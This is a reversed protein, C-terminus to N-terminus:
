DLSCLSSQGTCTFLQSNYGTGGQNQMETVRDRLDGTRGDGDHDTSSGQTFDETGSDIGQGGAAGKSDDTSTILTLGCHNDCFDSLNDAGLISNPPQNQTILGGSQCADIFITVKACAPLNTLDQILARYFVIQGVDEGDKPYLAFGNSDAHSAVYIWLEHCFCSQLNDCGVDAIEDVMTTLRTEFSLNEPSALSTTTNGWYQSRRTVTFGNDELYSQMTDADEAMNDALSTQFFYGRAEGGDVVLARKTCDDGAQKLGLFNELLSINEGLDTETSSVDTIDGAGDGTALDFTINDVTGTASYSFPEKTVGPRELLLPYAADLTEVSGDAVNVYAFRVAHTMKLEPNDDIFFAYYTSTGSPLTLTKATATHNQPLNEKLITGAPVPGVMIVKATTAISVSNLLAQAASQAEAPLDSLTDTDEGEEETTTTSTNNCGLAFIGVSFLLVLVAHRLRSHISMGMLNM